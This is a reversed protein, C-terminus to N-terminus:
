RDTQRDLSPPPIDQTVTEIHIQPRGAPANPGTPTHTQPKFPHQARFAAEAAQQVEERNRRTQDDDVLEQVSHARALSRSLPNIAPKHKFQAYYREQHPRLCLRRNTLPRPPVQRAQWQGTPQAREQAREKHTLDNYALREVREALSESLIPHGRGSLVKEAAPISPKFTYTQQAAQESLTRKRQQEYFNQRAVFDRNPGAFTASEEAIRQSLGNIAPTFTYQEQLGRQWSQQLEQKRRMEEDAEKSLREVFSGGAPRGKAAVLLRSNESLRPRFTLEDQRSAQGALPWPFAGHAVMLEQQIPARPGRGVRRCARGALPAEIRARQLRQNHQRQLFGVREYIPRHKALDLFRSPDNIRPQFAGELQRDELERRLREREQDRSAAGQLLRDEVPTTARPAAPVAPSALRAAIRRSLEDSPARIQPDNPSALASTPRGPRAPGASAPRRAPRSPTIRPAPSPARHLPPAQQNIRPKFTCEALLKEEERARELERERAEQTRPRALREVAPDVMTTLRARGAKAPTGSRSVPLSPTQRPQSAPRGHPASLPRTRRPTSGPAASALGGTGPATGSAPTSPPRLPTGGRNGMPAGIAFGDGGGALHQSSPAPCTMSELRARFPSPQQYPPQATPPIDGPNYPHLPRPSPPSRSHSPHSTGGAPPQRATAPSCPPRAPATGDSLRREPFRRDASPSPFLGMSTYPGGITTPRTPSFTEPHPAFMGPPAARAKAASRARSWRGPSERSAGFVAPAVDESLPDQELNEDAWAVRGTKVLPANGPHSQAAVAVLM